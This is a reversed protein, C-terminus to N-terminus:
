AIVDLLKGANTEQLCALLQSLGYSKVAKEIMEETTINAAEAKEKAEAMFAEDKNIVLMCAKIDAMNAKSVIKARLKEAYAIQKETGTLEPLEAKESASKKAEEEENRRYCDPCITINEKAWEEYSDAQERNNRFKIHTFKEGCVKCTCEIKVRAMIDYGKM